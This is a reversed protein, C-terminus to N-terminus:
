GSASIPWILRISGRLINVLGTGAAGLVGTASIARGTVPMVQADHTFRTSRNKFFASPTLPALTFRAVEIAVM